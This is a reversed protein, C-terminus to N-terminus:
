TTEYLGNCADAPHCSTSPGTAQPGDTDNGAVVSEDGSVSEAPTCYTKTMTVVALVIAVGVGVGVGAGVGAAVGVDGTGVLVGVVGGAVPADIVWFTPKPMPATTATCAPLVGTPMVNGPGASPPPSKFTIPEVAGGLLEPGVPESFTHTVSPEGFVDINKAEAGANVTVSGGLM